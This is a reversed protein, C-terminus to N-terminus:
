RFANQIACFTRYEADHKERAHELQRRARIERELKRRLERLEPWEPESPSAVRFAQYAESIGVITRYTERLENSGMYRFYNRNRRYLAEIRVQLDFSVVSRNLNRTM